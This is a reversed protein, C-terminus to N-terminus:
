CRRRKSWTEENLEVGAYVGSDEPYFMALLDRLNRQEEASLAM